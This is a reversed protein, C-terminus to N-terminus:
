KYLQISLDKITSYPEIFVTLIKKSDDWYSGNNKKAFDKSFFEKVINDNVEANLKNNCDMFILKM